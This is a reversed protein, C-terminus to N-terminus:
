IFDDLDIASPAVSSLLVASDAQAGGNGSYFLYSDTGVAVLAVEGTGAHGDFLQQAVAAAQSLGGQATGTLLASVAYGVAIHDSGAQFDTIRDGGSAISASAGGFQFLDNGSGGSLTDSGLDGGLVDDGAGGLLRDNGQGGRLSDNGAGGGILDDGLNGNVSDHGDDGLIVDDGAGGNIRDSGGEGSLTDNGANGQLYDNGDGGFILDAGDPGGNASQGYIHDNGSGGLLTDAGAGGLINDHGDYGGLYDGGAGGTVKDDGALVVALTSPYYSDLQQTFDLGKLDIGTISFDATQDAKYADIQRITGASIREDSTYQFGEGRIDFRYPSLPSSNYALVISLTDPSKTAVPQRYIDVFFGTAAITGSNSLVTFDAM